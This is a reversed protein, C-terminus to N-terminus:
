RSKGYLSRILAAGKKIPETPQQPTQICREIEAFEAADVYVTGWTTAALKAAAKTLKTASKLFKADKRSIRSSRTTRKAPTSSSGEGRSLAKYEM